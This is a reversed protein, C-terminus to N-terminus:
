AVLFVTVFSQFFFSQLFKNYNSRVLQCTNEEGKEHPNFNVSFVAISRIVFHRTWNNIKLLVSLILSCFVFCAQQICFFQSAHWITTRTRLFAAYVYVIRAIKLAASNVM